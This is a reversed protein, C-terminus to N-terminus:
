ACQILCVASVCMTPIVYVEAVFLSMYPRCTTSEHFDLYSHRAPLCSEEVCPDLAGPDKCGPGRWWQGCGVPEETMDLNLQCVPSSLMASACGRPYLGWGPLVTKWEWEMLFEILPGCQSWPLSSIMIKGLAWFPLLSKSGWFNFFYSLTYLTWWVGLFEHQCHWALLNLQQSFIKVCWFSALNIVICLLLLTFIIVILRKATEDFYAMLKFICTPVFKQISIKHGWPVMVQIHRWHSNFYNLSNISFLLFHIKQSRFALGNILFTLNFSLSGM